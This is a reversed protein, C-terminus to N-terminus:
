ATNEESDTFPQAHPSGCYLLEDDKSMLTRPQSM